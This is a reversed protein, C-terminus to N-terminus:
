MPRTRRSLLVYATAGGGLNLLIYLAVV